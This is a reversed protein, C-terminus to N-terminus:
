SVGELGDLGALFPPIEWVGMTVSYAAFSQV